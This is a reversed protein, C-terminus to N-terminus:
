SPAGDETLPLFRALWHSCMCNVRGGKSMSPGATEHDAQIEPPQRRTSECPHSIDTSLELTGNRSFAMTLWKTLGLCGEDQDTQELRKQLYGAATMAPLPDHANRGIRTMCGEISKQATQMYM